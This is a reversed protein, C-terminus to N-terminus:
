KQELALDVGLQLRQFAYALEAEAKDLPPAIQRTILGHQTLQVQSSQLRFRMSRMELRLDEVRFLSTNLAHAVDRPMPM